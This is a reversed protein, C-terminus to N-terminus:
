FFLLEPDPREYDLKIVRDSGLTDKTLVCSCERISHMSCNRVAQLFPVEDQIDIDTADTKFHMPIVVKPKLTNALDRAGNHDLTYKGGVPVLLVDVRGLAEIVAENPQCGLDGAHLVRIGDMEMVFMMNAGRKKGHVDDHFSPIGTIRVDGVTYPGVDRIMVPEGLAIDAYNHDYHEHSITLADVERPAINYGTDPSPPDTMVVVGTDNTLTFCSHGLWKIEM